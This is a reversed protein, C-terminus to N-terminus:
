KGSKEVAKLYDERTNLNMVADASFGGESLDAYQVRVSDYLDRIRHKGEAIMDEIAPLVSKKYIACLPEPEDLAKALICDTDEEMRDYLFRVLEKTIFPMDVACVFVRDNSAALLLRRIGELPGAAKNEDIVLPLGLEEYRSRAGCSVLLEPFSSLEKAIHGILSAGEWELLAKDRGMRSSRGGAMIGITIRRKEKLGNRAYDGHIGGTKSLLCIDTLVIDRQVAKCMDYVTMAAVSCATIAEMEVGTRGTCTVTAEIEVAKDEENLSLRLDVGDIVVPHCMPILEPTRKAGMIGAVQAVTLVDGKKIGGNKILEFTAPNVLVRAGASATRRTVEKDAVTVMRANGEDDFHSFGPIIWDSIKVTDNRDFVPRDTLKCFRETDDTVIAEFDDAPGPLRYGTDRGTIGIKKIDSNRYGEILVIDADRCDALMEDLSSSSSNMRASKSASAIYVKDAGARSFRFTDKGEKDIEFDHADHKIVAVRYGRGKFVPILKEILTTKGSGSFGSFAIVTRNNNKDMDAAAM